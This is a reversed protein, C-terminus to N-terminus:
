TFIVQVNVDSGPFSSGVQVIDATLYSGQPVFTIDPTGSEDENTGAAIAPRNGANTFITTGSLKVDVILATGTPPIGASAIVKSINFAVPAYWRSVGAAVVVTGAKSFVAEGSVGLGSNEIAEVRALLALFESQLAYSSFGELPAVVVADALDLTSGALGIPIEISYVRPRNGSAGNINETVQVTWDTPNVDPDNTAPLTVGVTAPTGSVIQGLSNLTATITRPVVILDSAPDLIALLTDPFAFVVTGSAPIGTNSGDPMLYTGTVLVTDLDAFPM